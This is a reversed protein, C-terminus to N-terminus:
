YAKVSNSNNISDKNEILKKAEEESITYNKSAFWKVLESPTSKQFIEIFEEGITKDKLVEIVFDVFSGM